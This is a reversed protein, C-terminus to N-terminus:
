LSGDSNYKNLYCFLDTTPQEFYSGGVVLKGDQLEVISSAIDMRDSNSGYETQWELDGQISLKFMLSRAFSENSGMRGTILYEGSNSVIVDLVDNYNEFEFENHSILEGTSSFKDHVIKSGSAPTNNKRIFLSYSNDIDNKVFRQGFAFRYPLLNFDLMEGSTTYKVLAIDMENNPDTVRTIAMLTNNEPGKALDLVASVNNTQDITGENLLSGNPSVIKYGYYDGNAVYNTFFYNGDDLEVFNRMFDGSLSWVIDGDSNVESVDGDGINIILNGSNTRYMRPVNTLFGNTTYYSRDWIENGNLDYKRLTFTSSVTNNGTYESSYHYIHDNILQMETETYLRAYVGNVQKEFTQPTLELNISESRTTTNDESDTVTLTVTFSGASNPSNWIVNTNTINEHAGESFSWDYTIIDNDPDSVSASVNIPDGAFVNNTTAIISSIVPASGTEVNPLPSDDSSSCGFVLLLIIYKFNKM